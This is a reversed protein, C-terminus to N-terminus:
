AACVAGALQALNTRNAASVAVVREQWDSPLSDRVSPCFDARDLKNLVVVAPAIEPCEGGIMPVDPLEGATGDLVMVVADATRVCERTKAAAAAALGDAGDRWGATDLWVIPFGRVVVPVEIWDRTTGPQPSTLCVEKEALANALTSKGANPPGILAVRAPRSFWDFVYLREALERCTARGGEWDESRLLEDVAKRLRIAQSLLWRAGLLTQMQPLLVHAEAEIADAGAMAGARAGRTTLFRFRDPDRLLAPRAVPQWASFAAVGM